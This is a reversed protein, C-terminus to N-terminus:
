NRMKEVEENAGIKRSCVPGPHLKTCVKEECVEVQSAMKFGLARKTQNNHDCLFSKKERFVALLHDFNGSKALNEFWSWAEAQSPVWYAELVSRAKGM